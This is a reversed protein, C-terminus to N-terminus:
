LPWWHDAVVAGFLIFLYAISYAFLRKEPQMLDGEGTTRTGVQISLLVFVASLIVATWGYLAGTYGLPWPAIAGIAMIRRLFLIQRRTSKEGAVVPMMPIGAAAYDSRVFLALAWFHPPTWLFILLFLLVPLPAISGTAAVWGILPPFAGAAGGIVINQPTRPKLWMTYVFVYFLISVALLLTAQWNSAFLMLFLSFAALGVGFQLATQPDLRGAPLPRGATRKMKADLGAEYWQNLAGSAGAGLAIALISSFALVPPVSGPAALLGCLATFVVLSMVRPKTLAFLDRWDAPLATEGHTLSQAM